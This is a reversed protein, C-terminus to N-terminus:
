NYDDYKKMKRIGKFLRRVMLILLVILITVIIYDINLFQEVDFYKQLGINIHVGRGSSQVTFGRSQYPKYTSALASIYYQGEPVLFAYTGSDDTIQPNVQGYKEADWLEFESSEESFHYLSVKANALRVEGSITQHFVYGEPDILMTNTIINDKKQTSYDVDTIIDFSGFVEPTNIDAVYVGDDNSDEFDVQDVIFRGKEDQPTSELDQDKIEAASVENVQVASVTEGFADIVSQITTKKQAEAVQRTRLERLAVQSTITEVPESPRIIMSVAQNPITRFTPGEGSFSAGNVVPALAIKGNNLEFFVVDTPLKEAADRLDDITYGELTDLVLASKALSDAPVLEDITPLALTVGQLRHLDAINRVGFDRFTKELTPFSTVLNTFTKPLGISGFSLLGDGLLESGSQTTVTPIISEGGTQPGPLPIIEKVIEKIDEYTEDVADQVDEIVDTVEDILDPLGGGEGDEPTTTTTAPTTTATGSPPQSEEEIPEENVVFAVLYTDGENGAGDRTVLELIYEGSDLIGFDIEWNGDQDIEIATKQSSNLTPIINAGAESTGKVIVNQDFEFEDEIELDIIEPAETDLIIESSIVPSETGDETFFKIYVVKTGNEESLPFAYAESYPIQSTDFFGEDESIAMMIADEGGDIALVVTLNNTILEGENIVLSFDGPKPPEPPPPLAPPPTAPSGGGYCNDTKISLSHNNSELSLANRSKIEFTYSNGCKFDSFEFEQKTVWGSNAGTNSNVIYYETGDPNGNADWAVTIATQSTFISRGNSPTASITYTSTVASSASGSNNYTTVYRSYETNPSLGSEVISGLNANESNLIEGGGDTFLKYGFEYNSNDTFNWQINSSNLPVAALMTPAVPSTYIVETMDSDDSFLESNSATADIYSKAKFSYSHNTSSDAYSYNTTNQSVTTTSNGITIPTYESGDESVYITFGSEYQVDDTWSLNIQNDSVFESAFNSPALPKSFEYNSYAYESTLESTPDLSARVRWRYRANTALGADQFTSTSVPSGSVAMYINNDCIQDDCREVDHINSIASTDTFSVTFANEGDYTSSVSTPAKPSTFHEIPDETYISEGAQNVAKVRYKYKSDVETSSDTYNTINPALDTLKQWGMFGGAGLTYDRELVFKDETTSLDQWGVTFENDSVRAASVSGPAVPADLMTFSSTASWIGEAGHHDWYKIRWYYTIDGDAMSFSDIIPGNGLSGYKIDKSRESAVVFNPLTTGEVGSDWHTINEFNPDTSVQIRAKNAYDHDNVVGTTWELSNKITGHNGYPSYDQVANGAGEYFHWGGILGSDTALGYRGNGGNYHTAIEEATLARDYISVEDLDGRFNYNHPSMAMAGITRNFSSPQGIGLTSAKTNDLEGNVYLAMTSGDYTFAVQYWTDLALVQNSVLKANVLNWDSIAPDNNWIRGSLRGGENVKLEDGDYKACCDRSNSTIYNFYNHEDLKIWALVTINEEDLKKGLEVYGGGGDFSLASKYSDKTDNFISSFYPYPGYMNTTESIKGPVWTAGNYLEGNNANIGYDKATDGAGEDFNWGSILGNDSALGRRGNGSNYYLDIEEQTLSYNYFAIEDVSGKFYYSSNGGGTTGIFFSDNKDILGEFTDTSNLVGDVYMTALNDASDITIVGFHWQNDNVLATSYLNITDDTARHNIHLRGNPRIGIYWGAGPYGGEQRDIMHNIIEINPVKFWFAVSATKGAFNFGESDPITIYDNEGDFYVASGKTELVNATPPANYDVEVQFLKLSKAAEIVKLFAKWLFKGTGIDTSFQSINTNIESETNSDDPNFTQAWSSGNWFYWSPMEQDGQNTIQYYPVPDNIGTILGVDQDTFSDINAFSVASAKAPMLEFTGISQHDPGATVSSIEPLYSANETEFIAKYQFYTNNPVSALGIAPTSYFSNQLESYYTSATGDPGMYTEGDCASDNCSRIQYKVRVAGRKYRDLVEEDLLARSYVAVEDILGKYYFAGNGSGVTIPEDNELSTWSQDRIINTDVKVGDVFVEINNGYDVRCVVHHWDGDLIDDVTVVDHFYSGSGSTLGFTCVLKKGSGYNTSGDFIGVGWQTWPSENLRKTVIYGAQSVNEPKIWAEISLDSEKTDLTNNDAITVSDDVGDFSAARNLKGYAVTDGGGVVLGHNENGSKDVVEDVTGSYSAENFHLLLENDTMNAGSASYQATELSRDSAINELGLKGIKQENYINLIKEASLAKSFITIEDMGGKYMYGSLDPRNGLWVSTGPNTPIVGSLGSYTKDLVGNIYIRLSRGDFVAAVYSWENLPVASISCKWGVMNQGLWVCPKLATLSLYYSSVSGPAPNKSILQKHSGSTEPKVWLGMTLKDSIELSSGSIEVYDDVGDFKLATGVQGEVGAVPCTNGSCSASNNYSSKDKFASSGGAENMHLVLARDPANDDLMAAGQRQAVFLNRMEQDSLKKNYITFEDIVGRFPFDSFGSHLARQGIEFVDGPAQTLAGASDYGVIGSGNKYIILEDTSADYTGGIFVFRDDQTSVGRIKYQTTYGPRAIEFYVNEAGSATKYTYVSWGSNDSLGGSAIVHFGNQSLDSKVWTSFSFDKIEDANYTPSNSFVLKDDVGDFYAGTSLQSAIGTLPCSTGSCSILNGGSSSDIFDTSGSAEDFHMLLGMRPNDPLEKGYPAKPNWALSWWYSAAYNNMVRSEFIGQQAPPRNIYNHLIEETSLARSYYQVDDVIGDLHQTAGYPGGTITAIGAIRNGDFQEIGNSNAMSGDLEGNIYLKLNEGDYTGVVYYWNDIEITTNGVLGSWNPSGDWISWSIKHTPQVRMYLRSIGGSIRHFLDIFNNDVLEDLRVWLAVSFIDSTYLESNPKTNFTPAVFSESTSSAFEFANAFKGLVWNNDFGDSQNLGGNMGSGSSDTVLNGSVEDFKWYLAVTGTVIGLSNNSASWGTGTHTGGGFGTQTNDDDTQDFTVFGAKGDTIKLYDADFTYDSASDFDWTKTVAHLDSFLFAFAVVFAAATLFASIHLFPKTKKELRNM